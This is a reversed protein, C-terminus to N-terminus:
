SSGPAPRLWLRSGNPQSFAVLLQDARAAIVVKGHVDLASTGPPPALPTWALGDASTWLRPATGILGGAVLCGNAAAVSTLRADGDPGGDPLAFAGAPAARWSRGDPSVWAAPTLRGGPRSSSAGVAVFSAGTWTVATPQQTGPGAFAAGAEVREWRRGDSSLWVAGDEVRPLPDALPVSTGLVLIGPRGLAVTIPTAIEGARGTLPTDQPPYAWAAGDTSRWVGAMQQGRRDDRPGVVVFGLGGAAMDEIDVTRPGGFLERLTPLEHWTGDRELWASPRARGEFESYYLGVAALRGAHWGVGTFRQQRGFLTVAATRDALWAGAGDWRWAAPAIEHAGLLRAGVAVWRPVAAGEGAPEAASPGPAVVDEVVTGPAGGSPPSPAATWGAAGAASCRAGAAGGAPTGGPRDPARAAPEAGPSGTCAAALLAIVLLPIAPAPGRRRRSAWRRM